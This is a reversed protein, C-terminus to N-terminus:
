MSLGGNVSIIQGTVFAGADSALYLAAHAIESPEGIRGLPIRRTLSTMLAERRAPDPKGQEDLYMSRSMPTEFWGPAIANVRVNAPGLEAAATWTLSHVAAKTMSYIATGPSPGTGGGSSINVIAGGGL